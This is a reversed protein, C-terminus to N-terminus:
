DSHTKFGGIQSAKHNLPLELLSGLPIRSHRFPDMRLCHSRFLRTIAEPEFCDIIRKKLWLVLSVGEHNWNMIGSIILDLDHQLAYFAESPAKRDRCAQLMPILRQITFLAQYARYDNGWQSRRRNPNEELEPLPNRGARYILVSFLESLEPERTPIAEVELIIRRVDAATIQNVTIM